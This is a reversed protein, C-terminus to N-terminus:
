IVSCSPRAIFNELPPTKQSCPVEHPLFGGFFLGGEGPHFLIELEPTLAPYLFIFPKFIERNKSIPSIREDKWPSPNGDTKWLPSTGESTCPPRGGLGGGGKM